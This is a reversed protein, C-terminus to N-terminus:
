RASHEQVLEKAIDTDMSILVVKRNQTALEGSTGVGKIHWPDQNGAGIVTIRSEPIGMNVLSNRVASARAYSLNRVYESDTDGATTGVLLLTFDPESNMYDAVPSISNLAKAEDIYIDSDGKFQVQEESFFVPEKFPEEKEDIQAVEFRIPEEDPFDIPTVTPLYSYNPAEMPVADSKVFTGGGREIIGKWISELKYAQKPTLAEQPYACDGLHMWKVTTNTFDPIAQKEELMDVVSEPDVSFLNNSFDLIGTTSLGTDCVLIVKETDTPASSIARTALRLAELTDVEPEKAKILTLQRMLEVTKANADAELKNKAAKKYQDPINCDIEKIM